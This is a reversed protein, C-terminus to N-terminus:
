LYANQSLSLQNPRLIYCNHMPFRLCHTDCKGAAFGRNSMKNYAAILFSTVSHHAM